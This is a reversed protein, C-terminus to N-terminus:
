PCLQFHEWVESHSWQFCPTLVFGTVTIVSSDKTLLASNRALDDGVPVFRVRRARVDLAVVYLLYM